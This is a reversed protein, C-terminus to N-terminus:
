DNEFTGAFQVKEFDHQLVTDLVRVVEQVIVGKRPDLTVPINRSDLTQLYASLQPLSRFSHAGVEYRLRRSAPTPDAVLIIIHQKEVALGCGGLDKPLSADVQGELTQFNLTAIFFALLLFTVDVMPTWDSKAPEPLTIQVM